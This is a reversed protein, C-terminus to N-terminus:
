APLQALLSTTARAHEELSGSNDLVLQSRRRKEDVALQQAERREWDQADMGRAVARARRTEAPCDVFLVQDCLEALGGEFLLPVDLLVRQGRAAAEAIGARIAQRVAPHILGELARKKEPDRFIADALKARDPCDDEGYIGSGFRAELDPRLAPSDLAEKALQDADLWAFGLDAFARAVSSKGSGIGGAIGLVLPPRPLADPTADM